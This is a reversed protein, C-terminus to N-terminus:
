SESTARNRMRVRQEGFEGCPDADVFPLLDMANSQDQSGIVPKPDNEHLLADMATDTGFPENAM